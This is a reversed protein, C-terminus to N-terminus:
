RDQPVGMKAAVIALLRAQARQLSGANESEADGGQSHTLSRTLSHTTCANSLVCCYLAHLAFAVCLLCCAARLMIVIHVKAATCLM